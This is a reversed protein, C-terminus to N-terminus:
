QPYLDLKGCHFLIAVRYNEFSRFGRAASRIMQIKSNFGETVANTVKHVSYSLLGTIHDLFMRAVKQIPQLGTSNAAQHWQDFFSRAGVRTDFSWFHQFNERAGWAKTVKLDKARLEKFHAKEEAKWTSPAKLFLYKRGTLWYVSDQSLAAHERKRVTDVAENLHKMVDFRDHVLDANPAKLEAANMFAPWMDLAVEKLQARQEVPLSELAKEASAQERHEVVELVRRYDLDTAGNWLSTRPWFEERRTRGPQDRRHQAAAIWTGGGCGPDPTDPALEAAPIRVGRKPKPRDVAIPDVERRVGDHLALGGGGVAGDGNESWAGSVRQTAGSLVAEDHAGDHGLAEVM